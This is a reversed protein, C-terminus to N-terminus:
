ACARRQGGFPQPELGVGAAQPVAPDGRQIRRAVAPDRPHGHADPQLVVKDAHRDARQDPLETGGQGIRHKEELGIIGRLHAGIQHCARLIHRHKVGRFDVGIQIELGQAFHGIQHDGGVRGPQALQAGVAIDEGIVGGGKRLAMRGQQGVQRIHRQGDPLVRRHDIQDCRQCAAGIHQGRGCLRQDRRALAIQHRIRRDDGLRDKGTDRQAVPM